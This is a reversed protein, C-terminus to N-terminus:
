ALTELAHDAVDAGAQAGGPDAIAPEAHLAVRHGQRQGVRRLAVLRQGLDLLSFGKLRDLPPRTRSKSM